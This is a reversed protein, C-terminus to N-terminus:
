FQECFSCEFTNNTDKALRPMHLYFNVYACAFLFSKEQLLVIYPNATVECFRLKRRLTLLGLSLMTNRNITVRSISLNFYGYVSLM